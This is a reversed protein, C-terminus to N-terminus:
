MLCYKNKTTTLIHYITSLFPTNFLFDPGFIIMMENFFLFFYDSCFPGFIKFIVYSILFNHIKFKGMNESFLEQGTRIFIWKLSTIIDYGWLKDCADYM